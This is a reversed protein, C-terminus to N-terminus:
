REHATGRRVAKVMKYLKDNPRIKEPTKMSFSEGKVTENVPKKDVHIEEPTLFIAGTTPGTILVEEGPKLSQTEMSFETVGINGFHKIAKGLYVKRKTAGFWIPTDM